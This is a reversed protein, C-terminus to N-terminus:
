PMQSLATQARRAIIWAVLATALLGIGLLAWRLPGASSLEAGLSGLYVYLASAPLTGVLTAITYPLLKIGTISLLYNQVGFPIFPSLRLLLVIRWSDQSVARVVSILRKDRAVFEQVRSRAFVRGVLLAVVAALTASLAAVVLGLGLGWLLGASLTLLLTPGIVLTVLVYALAFLVFGTSGLSMIHDQLRTVLDAVPLLQWLGYLLLLAAIFFGLKTLLGRWRERLLPPLPPRKTM